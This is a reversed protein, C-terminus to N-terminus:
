TWNELLDLAYGSKTMYGPEYSWQAVPSNVKFHAFPKDWTVATGDAYGIRLPPETTLAIVGSGNATADAIVEVRQSTLGAGITLADGQKLTTAAQGAGGTVSLPTAPGQGAVHAGNLTLTGRMTGLPALRAVDWVALHNIRGRLQLMM